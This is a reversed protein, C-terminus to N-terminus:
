RSLAARHGLKLLRPDAGDGATWQSFLISSPVAGGATSLKSKAWSLSGKEIWCSIIDEQM